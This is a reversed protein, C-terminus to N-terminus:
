VMIYCVWVMISVLLKLCVIMRCVWPMVFVMMHHELETLIMTLNPSLPVGVLVCVVCVDYM